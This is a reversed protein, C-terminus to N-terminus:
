GVEQDSQGFDETWLQVSWPLTLICSALEQIQEKHQQIHITVRSVAQQNNGVMINYDQWHKTATHVFKSVHILWWEKITTIYSDFENTTSNLCEQLYRPGKLYWYKKWQKFHALNWVWASLWKCTVHPWLQNRTVSKTPFYLFIVYIQRTNTTTNVIIEMTPSKM